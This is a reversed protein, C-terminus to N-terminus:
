FLTYYRFQSVIYAKMVIKRKGLCTYPAIRALAKIKQSPQKCLNNIHDEFSLKPDLVISLLENKNESITTHDDYCKCKDNRLFLLKGSNIKMYNFDFWIFIVESFHEIEKIALDNTENASYAITDDAYIAVAVSQLWYFLDCSFINFFAPWPNIGATNWM